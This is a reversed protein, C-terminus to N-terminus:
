KQGRPMLSSGLHGKNKWVSTPLGLKLDTELITEKQQKREDFNTEETTVMTMM